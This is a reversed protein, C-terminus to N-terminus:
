AIRDLCREDSTIVVTFRTRIQGLLRERCEAVLGDRAAGEQRAIRMTYREVLDLIEPQTAIIEKFHNDLLDEVDAGILVRTTAAM